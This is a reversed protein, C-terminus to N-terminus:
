FIAKFTIFLLPVISCFVFYFLKRLIHLFQIIISTFIIDIAKFRFLNAGFIM